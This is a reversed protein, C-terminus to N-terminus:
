DSELLGESLAVAVDPPLQRIFSILKSYAKAPDIPDPKEELAARDRMRAFEDASVKIGKLTHAFIEALRETEAVTPVSTGALWNSVVIKSVGAMCALTQNKMHCSAVLHNLVKTFDHM